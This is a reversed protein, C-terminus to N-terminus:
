DFDAPGSHSFDYPDFGYLGNLYTPELQPIPDCTFMLERQLWGAIAIIQQETANYTLISASYKFVTDALAKAVYLKRVFKTVDNGAFRSQNVFATQRRIAEYAILSFSQYQGLTAVIM